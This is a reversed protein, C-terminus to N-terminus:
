TRRATLLFLDPEDRVAALSLDATRLLDPWEDPTPLHDGQVPAGIHDHFANINQWSDLHLVLLTGGPRLARAFNELAAAPNRYHPFSHMCFILDFAAEGLSEVCVDRCLYSAAGGRAQAQALMAPSFDVATVSGPKVQDIIWRTVQGTGCGVELVDNGSRLPLQGRLTDLRHLTQDIPPGDTDWTPAHQDFFAIRPDPQADSEPM